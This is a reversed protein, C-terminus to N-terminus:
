DGKRGSAEQGIWHLYSASGGMVPIVLVAPTEYPHAAIINATVADARAPMTKAILVVERATEIAGQWRYISTMSPLINICAALQLELLKRGTEEALEASPFTAYVLVAAIDTAATGELVPETLGPAVESKNNEAM